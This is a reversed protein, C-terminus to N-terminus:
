HVILKRSKIKAILGYVLAPSTHHAHVIQFEPHNSFLNWWFMLYRWMGNQSPRPAYFVRGGLAKIEEEYDYRSVSENVVFDFQVDSRDISRYINMLMTEAGARDLSAFVQLVRM